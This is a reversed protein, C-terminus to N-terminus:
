SVSEKELPGSAARDLARAWTEAAAREVDALPAALADAIREVLEASARRRGVLYTELTSHAVGLADALDRVTRVRARPTERWRRLEDAVLGRLTARDPPTDKSRRPM